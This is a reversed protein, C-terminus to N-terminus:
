WKVVVTLSANQSEFYFKDHSASSSGERFSNYKFMINLGDASIYLCKGEENIKAETIKTTVNCDMAM